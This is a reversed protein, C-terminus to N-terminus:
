APFDDRAHAARPDAPRWDPEAFEALHRGGRGKGARHLRPRRSGARQVCRRSLLNSESSTTRAGAQFGPTRSPSFSWRPRLVVDAISPSDGGGIFRTDTGYFASLLGPHAPAGEGGVQSGSGERRGVGGFHLGRRPVWLFGLRSYTAHTLLPHLINLTYFNASEVMARRMLDTPCLDDRGDRSALYM